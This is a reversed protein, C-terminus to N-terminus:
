CVVTCLSHGDHKAVHLLLHEAVNQSCRGHLQRCTLTVLALAWFAEELKYEQEAQHQFLQCLQSLMLSPLLLPGCTVPIIYLQNLERTARRELSRRWQLFAARQCSPVPHRPVQWDKDASDTDSCLPHQLFTWGQDPWWWGKRELLCCPHAGFGAAGRWLYVRGWCYLAGEKEMWFCQSWGLGLLKWLLLVQSFVYM